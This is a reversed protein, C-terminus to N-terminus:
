NVSSLQAIQQQIRSPLDYKAEVVATYLAQEFGPQDAGGHSKVVVGQLGLFSAGNYQGPDINKRVRALLPAITDSDAVSLSENVMQRAVLQDVMAAVSEMTKLMMNGVFGDCVAIDVRGDFIDEPEIFGIYNLDEIDSILGDARQALENGKGAEKGMNLLGIRPSAVGYVSTLMANAMVSFQSLYHPQATANAGLDLVFCRGELTPFASAIAPRDVAPFTKLLHCGIAMLAGTNGASVCADAHGQSVLEIARYTSSNQKKRLAVSPKEDMGIVDPTHIIRIRECLTNGAQSILAEIQPRDGILTLSLNQNRQLAALSAPVTVVPGFDGGMVDVALHIASDM